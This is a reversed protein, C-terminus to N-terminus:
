LYTIQQLFVSSLPKAILIMMFAILHALTLATTWGLDPRVGTRAVIGVAVVRSIASRM